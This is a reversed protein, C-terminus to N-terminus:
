HKRPRFLKLQWLRHNQPLLRIMVGWEVSHYPYVSIDPVATTNGLEITLEPFIGFQQHYRVKLAASLNLQTLSHQKTPMPKGRELEYDSVKRLSKLFALDEEPEMEFAIDM